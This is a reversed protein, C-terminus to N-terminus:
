SLSNRQMFQLTVQRARCCQIICHFEEILVGGEKMQEFHWMQM